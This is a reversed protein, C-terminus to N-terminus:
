LLIEIVRSKILKEYYNLKNLANIDVGKHLYEHRADVNWTTDQKEDDHSPSDM